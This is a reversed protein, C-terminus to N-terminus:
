DIQDIAGKQSKKWMTKGTEESRKKKRRERRERREIKKNTKAQLPPNLNIVFQSQIESIITVQNDRTEGERVIRSTMSSRQLRTMERGVIGAIENKLIVPVLDAKIRNRKKKMNAPFVLNASLAYFLLHLLGIKNYTKNARGTLAILVITNDIQTM